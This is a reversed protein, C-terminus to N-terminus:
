GGTIWRKVTAAKSDLEEAIQEFSKRQEFFLRRALDQKGRYARVRCGDSCFRKHSRATDPALEFSKECVLCRAYKRDNVVADAFQLWLASALSSATFRLALRDKSAAWTLFPAARKECKQLQEDLRRKLYALAPVLVDGPEIRGQLGLPVENLVVPEHAKDNGLASPGTEGEADAHSFFAVVDRQTEDKGWRFHRALRATDGARYLDWLGVLQAMLSIQKQWEQLPEGQLEPGPPQVDKSNVKIPVAVGLGGFNSAFRLVDELSPQTEALSRYAVVDLESL